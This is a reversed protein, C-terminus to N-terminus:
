PLRVVLSVRSNLTIPRIKAPCVKSKLEKEIMEQQVTPTFRNYVIKSPDPKRLVHKKPRLSRQQFNKYRKIRARSVLM